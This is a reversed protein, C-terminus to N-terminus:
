FGLTNSAEIKNPRDKKLFSFFLAQQININKEVTNQKFDLKLYCLM